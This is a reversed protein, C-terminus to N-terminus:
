RKGSQRSAKAVAAAVPNISPRESPKKTVLKRTVSGSDPLEEKAVEAIETVRVFRAVVDPGFSIRDGSRLEQPEGDVTEGNLRTGNTSGNDVIGFRTGSRRLECHRSSITDESIVIANGAERGISIRDANLFYHRAAEGPVEVVLNFITKPM